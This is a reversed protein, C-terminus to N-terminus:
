CLEIEKGFICVGYTLKVIDLQASGLPMAKDELNAHNISGYRVSSEMLKTFLESVLRM